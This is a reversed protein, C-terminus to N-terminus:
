LGSVGCLRGAGWRQRFGALLRMSRVSLLWPWGLMRDGLGPRGAPWGFLEGVPRGAGPLDGLVLIMGGPLSRVHKGAGDQDMVQRADRSVLRGAASDSCVCIVQNHM